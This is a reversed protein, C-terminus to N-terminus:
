PAATMEAAWCWRRVPRAPSSPWGGQAPLTLHLTGDPRDLALHWIGVAALALATLAANPLWARWSELRDKGRWALWLLLAYFVLAATLSFQLQIEGGPLRALWEAARITYAPLLWVLAAMWNVLPLAIFAALLSVGGLVMVAPQPPLILPNSLLASLSIRGFNGAIVPLTALQAVLTILLSEGAVAAASRLWGEPSRKFDLSGAPPGIPRGAAGVRGFCCLPQFSIEAVIQPHFLAM